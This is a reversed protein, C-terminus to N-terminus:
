MPEAIGLEAQETVGRGGDAAQLAERGLEREESLTIVAVASLRGTSIESRWSPLTVRASALSPAPGFDKM